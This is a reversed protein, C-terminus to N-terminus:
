PTGSAPAPASTRVKRSLQGVADDLLARVLDTRAKMSSPFRLDGTYMTVNHRDEFHGRSEALANGASDEIRLRGALMAIDRDLPGGFFLYLGATLFFGPLYAPHLQRQLQYQDFQFHLMVDGDALHGPLLNVRPFYRANQAYTAIGLTLARQLDLPNETQAPIQVPSLWAGRSVSVPAAEPPELSAGPPVFM